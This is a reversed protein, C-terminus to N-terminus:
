GACAQGYKREDFATYGLVLAGREVPKLNFASLPRAILKHQRVAHEAARGDVGDPLWGILHM